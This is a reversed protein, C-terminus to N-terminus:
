KKNNYGKHEMMAYTMKIVPAQFQPSINAYLGSIDEKQYIKAQDM